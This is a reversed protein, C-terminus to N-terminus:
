TERAYHLTMSCTKSWPSEGSCIQERRQTALSAIRCFNPISQKYGPVSGHRHEMSDKSSKMRMVFYVHSLVTVYLDGKVVSEM